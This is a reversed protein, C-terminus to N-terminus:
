FVVPIVKTTALGAKYQLSSGYVDTQFPGVLVTKNAAIVVSRTPLAAGDVLESRTVTVTESSAATNQLLLRVKGNNPTSNGNTADAATGTTLDVPTPTQSINVSAIPTAPM